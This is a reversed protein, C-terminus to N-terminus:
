SHAVLDRTHAGTLQIFTRNIVQFGHYQMTAPDDTTTLSPGLFQVRRNLAHDLGSRVDVTGSRLCDPPEACRPSM